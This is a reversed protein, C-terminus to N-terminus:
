SLLTKWPQQRAKREEDETETEADTETERERKQYKLVSNFQGPVQEKSWARRLSLSIWRSTEAEQTSLNFTHAVVVRITKRKLWM